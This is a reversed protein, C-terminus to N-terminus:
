PRLPPFQTLIMPSHGSVEGRMCFASIGDVGCEGHELVDVGGGSGKRSLPRQLALALGGNRLSPVWAVM